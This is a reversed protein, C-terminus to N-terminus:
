FFCKLKESELKRKHCNLNISFNSEFANQVFPVNKNGTAGMNYCFSVFVSTCKLAVLLDFENEARFSFGLQIESTQNIFNRNIVLGGVILSNFKIDTKTLRLDAIMQLSYKKQIFNLGSNLVWQRPTKPISQQLNLSNQCFHFLAAGLAIHLGQDNETNWSIGTSFDIYSNSNSPISQEIPHTPDFPIPQFNQFNPLKNLDFQSKYIGIM